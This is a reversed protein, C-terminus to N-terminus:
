RYSFFYNRCTAPQDCQIVGDEPVIHSNYKSSRVVEETADGEGKRAVGFKIDYDDTWFTYRSVIIQFIHCLVLFVTVSLLIASKLCNGIKGSYM